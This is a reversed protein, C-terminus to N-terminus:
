ATVAGHEPEDACLEGTLSNPNARTVRVRVTRGILEAPGTFNVIANQTTRGHVQGPDRASVGDVLVTYIKGTRGQNIELTVARQLAQLETLRRSKEERPVSDKYGAAATGPRPSYNFSYLLDFRVERILALTDEYDTETEGPFGVIVDASFAIDPRAEKLRDILGLYRARTYRRNMLKLVRDSGSQFPLHVHSCLKEMDAFCSILEDSMDKPHSTTFRIREIGDVAGIERLLHPFGIGGAYSNVNQGLLFVEKVGDAAHRRVEELVSERSRSTERGRVYPVICYSCYNDCGQMVTIYARHAPTMLKRDPVLDLSPICECFRTDSVPPGGELRENVAEAMRHLQHTGLVIDVHPMRTIIDEGKHQAICGTVAIVLSPKWKKYPKLRGINSLAKEYAKQRVSCTNLVILDAKKLSETPEWGDRALLSYLRLSDLDNMQCGYTFIKVYGRM